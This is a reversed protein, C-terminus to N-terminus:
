GREEEERLEEEGVEREAGWEEDERLGKGQGGVGKAGEKGGVRKARRM